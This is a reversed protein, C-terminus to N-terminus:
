TKEGTKVPETSRLYEVAAEADDLMHKWKQWGVVDRKIGCLRCIEEDVGHYGGWHPSGYKGYDKEGTMRRWLHKGRCTCILNTM